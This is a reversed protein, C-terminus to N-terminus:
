VPKIGCFDENILSIHTIDDNRRMETFSTRLQLRDIFLVYFNSGSKRDDSLNLNNTEQFKALLNSLNM